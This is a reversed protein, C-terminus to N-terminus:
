SKASERSWKTKWKYGMGRRVRISNQDGPGPLRRSPRARTHSHLPKHEGAHLEGRLPCRGAFRMRSGCGSRHPWVEGQMAVFCLPGITTVIVEQVTCPFERGDDLTEVLFEDDTCVRDTTRKPFPISQEHHRLLGRIWNTGRDPHSVPCLRIDLPVKGQRPWSKRRNPIVDARGAPAVPSGAHVLNQRDRGPNGRLSRSRRSEWNGQGACDRRRGLQVHDTGRDPFQNGGCATPM